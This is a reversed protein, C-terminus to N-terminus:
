GKGTAVSKRYKESEWNAIFSRASDDMTSLRYGAQAIKDTIYFVATLMETVTRANKETMRMLTEGTKSNVVCQGDTIDEKNVFFSDKLFVMQDPYLPKETLSQQSYEAHLLQEKLYTTDAAYFGAAMERIFVKPFDTGCIGFIKAIRENADAHLALCTDPDDDHVVIGHNQMLIVSPVKGTQAEARAMADRIVFTLNIGPNCYPVWVWSYDAGAFALEAIKTCSDSCAALNAYVSHTHLVYTKMISHFGAEVSPRLSKLGEISKTNAKACDNGSKEMDEMEEPQNNMYFDRLATYDMVAYANDMAIDGLCYGSAKIAMLGDKLKVSTNGGGGQVYDARKGLARSLRVFNQLELENDKLFM